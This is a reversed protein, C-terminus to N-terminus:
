FPDVWETISAVMQDRLMTRTLAAQAIALSRLAAAVASFVQDTPAYRTVPVSASISRRGREQIRVTLTLTEHELTELQSLTVWVAPPDLEDWLTPSLPM